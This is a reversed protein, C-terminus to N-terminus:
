KKDQKYIEYYFYDFIDQSIKWAYDCDAPIFAYEGYIMGFGCDKYLEPQKIIKDVQDQGIIEQDVLYDFVNKEPNEVYWREPLDNLFYIGQKILIDTYRIKDELNSRKKQLNFLAKIAKDKLDKNSKM